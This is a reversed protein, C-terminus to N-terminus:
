NVTEVSCLHPTFYKIIFLIWISSNTNRAHSTWGILALVTGPDSVVVVPEMVAQETHQMDSCIALWLDAWGWELELWNSPSSWQISLPPNCTGPTGWIVPPSMVVDNIYGSLPSRKNSVFQGRRCSLVASGRHPFVQWQDIQLPVQCKVARGNTLPKGVRRKNAM